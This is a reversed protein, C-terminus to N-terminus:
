GGEPADSDASTPPRPTPVIRVDMGAQPVLGLAIRLKAFGLFAGLILTLEVLETPTLHARLRRQLQGDAAVRSPASVFADTFALVAKSREGLSENQEYGDVIQAALDEDVGQQKAVAFRM